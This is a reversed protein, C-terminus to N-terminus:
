TWISRTLCPRFPRGLVIGATPARWRSYPAWASAVRASATWIHGPISSGIGPTSVPNSPGHRRLKMVRKAPTVPMFVRSLRSGATTTSGRVRTRFRLSPVPWKKWISTSTAIGCRRQPRQCWPCRPRTVGSTAPSPRRAWRSSRLIMWPSRSSPQRYSSTIATSGPISGTRNPSSKLKGKPWVGLVTALVWVRWSARSCNVCM